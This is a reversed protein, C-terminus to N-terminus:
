ALTERGTLSATAIPSGEVRCGAAIAALFLGGGPNLDLAETHTSKADVADRMSVIVKRHGDEMAALEELFSATGQDTQLNAARRYFAIGNTEMQVAIVFAEAISLLEAMADGRGNGAM